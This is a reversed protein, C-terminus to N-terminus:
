YIVCSKQRIFWISISKFHTTNNQKQTFRGTQGFHFVHSTPCNQKVLLPPVLFSSDSNKKLYITMEQLFCCCTKKGWIM